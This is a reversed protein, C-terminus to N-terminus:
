ARAGSALTPHEVIANVIKGAADAVGYLQLDCDVADSIRVHHSILEPGAGVLKNVGADILEVWETEDRMTVCPKDHFYAEKKHM